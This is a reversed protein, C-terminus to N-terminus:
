MLHEFKIHGGQQQVVCDSFTNKCFHDQKRNNSKLCKVNRLTSLYHLLVISIHDKTITNNCIKEQRQSHFLKSFRNM